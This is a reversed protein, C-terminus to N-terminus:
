TDNEVTFRKWRILYIMVGRLESKNLIKEVEWEEVRNVKVLKPKEVRQEKMPEKYRVVRSMNVVPHIRMSILLKLKVINKSIIEKVMYLGMYREMLKKVPREKFVLEKTSLIVRNGKKWEEVERQGRNIQRRMEEQVKRLVVGAKEQVKKMRETAKEVKEKRRIDAEIRLEIGYKAMFPSAKTASYVKNNV